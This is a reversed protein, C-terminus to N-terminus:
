YEVKHVLRASSTSQHTPLHQVIPHAVPIPAKQPLVVGWNPYLSPLSNRSPSFSNRLIKLRIVRLHIMHLLVLYLVLSLRTGVRLNLPQRIFRVVTLPNFPFLLPIKRLLKRFIIYGYTQRTYGLCVENTLLSGNRGDVHLTKSPANRPSDAHPSPPRFIPQGLDKNREAAGINEKQSGELIAVDEEHLQSETQTSALGYFHYHPLSNSNRSASSDSSFGNSHVAQPKFAADHHPETPHRSCDEDNALM